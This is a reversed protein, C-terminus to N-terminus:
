VCAKTSHYLAGDNDVCVYGNGKGALSNIIVKGDGETTLKINRGAYSLINLANGQLGDLAIRSLPPEGVPNSTGRFDLAYRIWVPENLEIRSNPDITFSQGQEGIYMFRSYVGGLVRAEQIECVGDANCQNANVASQAPALDVDARDSNYLFRTWDAGAGKYLASVSSLAFVFMLVASILFALGFIKGEVRNGEDGLRFAM